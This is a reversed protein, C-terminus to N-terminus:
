ASAEGPLGSAHYGREAHHLARYGEERDGEKAHASELGLLADARMIGNAGELAVAIVAGTAPRRVRCIM